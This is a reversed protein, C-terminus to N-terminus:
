QTLRSGLLKGLPVPSTCLDGDRHVSAHWHYLPYFYSGVSSSSTAERNHMYLISVDSGQVLNEWYSEDGYQFDM